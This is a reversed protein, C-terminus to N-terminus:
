LILVNFLKVVHLIVKMTIVCHVNTVIMIVSVIMLFSLTTVLKCDSLIKLLRM